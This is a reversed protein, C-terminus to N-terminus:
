PAREDRAAAFAALLDVTRRAARVETAAVLRCGRVVAAAVIATTSERDCFMTDVALVHGYTLLAPVAELHVRMADTILRGHLGVDIIIREAPIGAAMAKAAPSGGDPPGAALPAAVMVSGGAGAVIAFLEARHGKVIALTAGAAFGAELRDVHSTAIGLPVDFRTRLATVLSEVGDHAPFSLADAGEALAREAQSLVVGLPPPEAFVGSAGLVGLVFARCGVDFRRDGLALFV